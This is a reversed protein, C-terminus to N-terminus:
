RRLRETWDKLAVLLAHARRLSGSIGLVRIRQPGSM